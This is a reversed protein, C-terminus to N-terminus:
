YSAIPLRKNTKNIGIKLRTRIYRKSRVSNFHSHISYLTKSTFIANHYFNSNFIYIYTHFGKNYLPVSVFISSGM